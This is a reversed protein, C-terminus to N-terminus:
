NKETRSKPFRIAGSMSEARARLYAMVVWTYIPQGHIVTEIQRLRKLGSKDCPLPKDGDMVDWSRIMSLVQEDEVDDQIERIRKIEALDKSLMEDTLEDDEKREAGIAAIAESAKALRDNWEAQRTSDVVYAVGSFPKGFLEGEIPITLDALHAATLDLGVSEKSM